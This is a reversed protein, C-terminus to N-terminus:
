GGFEKLCKHLGPTLFKDLEFDTGDVIGTSDRYFWSYGKSSHIELELHLSGKKWVLCIHDKQLKVLPLPLNYKPLVIGLVDKTTGVMEQRAAVSKDLFSNLAEIKPNMELKLSGV